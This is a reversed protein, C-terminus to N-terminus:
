GDKRLPLGNSSSSTDMAVLREQFPPHWCAAHLAPAPPTLRPPPGSLHPAPLLLSILLHHLRGGASPLLSAHAALRLSSFRRALLVLVPRHASPPFVDPAPLRPPPHLVLAPPPISRCAARRKRGYSFLLGVSKSFPNVAPTKKYLKCTKEHLQAAFIWHGGNGTQVTADLHRSADSVNGYLSAEM